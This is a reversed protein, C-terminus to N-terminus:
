TGKRIAGRVFEPTPPNPFGQQRAKEYWGIAAEADGHSLSITGLNNSALGNGQESAKVYWKRAEDEDPPQGGLGLQCLSGIAAQAEPAGAEAFPMLMAYAQEFDGKNLAKLGAKLEKKPDKEKGAM